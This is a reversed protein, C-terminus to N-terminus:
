TVCKVPKWVGNDFWIRSFSEGVPLVSAALDNPYINIEASSYMPDWPEVIVAGKELPILRPLLAQDWHRGKGAAQLDKLDSYEILEHLTVLTPPSLPIEGTLNGILGEKPSIWLGEVTERSDPRCFQNSPMTAIFFRTDFRRKMLNPTIWHAWQSLASLALCWKADVVLKTFWDKQLNGALRLKRAHNLNAELENDRHALFVGAEELTERIAAVCYSLIQSESLEEGFRDLINILELDIHNKFVDFQRDESDVTGGPFVYNGAMFGSKPNRKLLYVQLKGALERTLIVTAAQAIDSPCVRNTEM